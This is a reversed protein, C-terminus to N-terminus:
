RSCRGPSAPPVPSPSEMQRPMTSACPPVIRARFRGPPPALKAMVQQVRAEPLGEMIRKVIVDRNLALSLPVIVLLLILFIAEADAETMGAQKAIHKVIPKRVEPLYFTNWEEIKKDRTLDKKKNRKVEYWLADFFKQREGKLIERYKAM